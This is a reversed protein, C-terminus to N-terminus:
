FPRQFGGNLIKVIAQCKTEEFGSAGIGSGSSLPRSNRSSTSQRPSPRDDDRQKISKSPNPNVDHIDQLDCNVHAASDNDTLASDTPILRKSHCLDDGSRKGDDFNQLSNESEQSVM